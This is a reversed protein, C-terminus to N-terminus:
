TRVVMIAVTAAAEQVCPRDGVWIVEETQTIPGQLAVARM